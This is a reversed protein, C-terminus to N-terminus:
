DSPPWKSQPSSGIESLRAVKSMKIKGAIIIIISIFEAGKIKETTRDALNLGKFASDPPSQMPLMPLISVYIPVGFNEM